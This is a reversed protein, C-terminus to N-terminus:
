QQRKGGLLFPTYKNIFLIIPIETFLVFITGIVNGIEINPIFKNVFHFIPMLLIHTCLVILSNKGYFIFIRSFLTRQVLRSVGIVGLSALISIFLFMMCNWPIHNQSVNTYCPFILYISLTIIILLVGMKASIHYLLLNRFESGIVFFILCLLSVDFYYPVNPAVKGFYYALVYFFLCICLRLWRRKVQYIITAYITIQILSWIFWCPTNQYGSTAGLLPSLIINWEIAEDMILYKIIYLISALLMFSIYPIILRQIRKALNNPNFFLGSLIFFLPMYFILVYGGLNINFITTTTLINPMHFWVVLIIGIGKAIDISKNRM